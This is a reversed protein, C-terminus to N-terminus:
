PSAAPAALVRTTLTGDRDPEILLEVDPPATAAARDAKGPRATWGLDHIRCTEAAVEKFDKGELAAWNSSFGGRAEDGDLFGGDLRDWINLMRVEQAFRGDVVALRARSRVGIRLVRGTKECRTEFQMRWEEVVPRGDRKAVQLEFPLGQTTKGNWVGTPVGRDSRRSAIVVILGTALALVVLSRKM